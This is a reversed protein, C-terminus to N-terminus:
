RPSLGSSQFIRLGSSQFIRLGSSLIRLSCPELRAREELVISRLDSIPRDDPDVIPDRPDPESVCYKASQQSHRRTPFSEDLEFCSPGESSRHRHNCPKPMPITTVECFYPLVTICYYRGQHGKSAQHNTEQHMLGQDGTRKGCIQM